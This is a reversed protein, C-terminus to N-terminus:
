LASIKQTPDAALAELITVLEAVLGEATAAEFLDTAYVLAGSLAEQGEMLTLELDHRAAGQVLGAPADARYRVELPSIQLDAQPLSQTNLAARFIPLRAQEPQRKVLRVVEAYPLEQHEFDALMSRRVRELLELGSPDGRLDLRLALPNALPGIVDRVEWRNRNSALTGVAFDDQGGARRSLLTAFGAMLVMLMSCRQEAALAELRRTTEESFALPLLAGEGSPMGGRGHDAQLALGPCDELRAAWYARQEHARSGKLWVDRQWRSYEYHQVPLGPLPNTTGAACARYLLLLERCFVGISWADSVLQHLTVLLRHREDTLTLLTFRAPLDKAFSFPTGTQERTLREVERQQEEGQLSYLDHWALNLPINQIVNQRPRGEVVPFLTRLAGHREILALLARRLAAMNLKGELELSFHLMLFARAADLQQLSWCGLQASSVPHHLSAEAGRPAGVQKMESIVEALASMDLPGTLDQQEPFHEDIIFASLSKITPHKWMVTLPLRLDLLTELRNVLEASSLSDFNYRSLPTEADIQEIKLHLIRAVHERIFHELFFRRGTQPAEVLADRLSQDPVWRESFGYPDEDVWVEELVSRVVEELEGKIFGLRCAYRQIKGSSTKPVSGPKILVIAHCKLEHVTGVAARVASFLEEPSFAIAGPKGKSVKTGAVAVSGSAGAGPDVDEAQRRDAGKRREAVEPPPPAEGERRDKAGTLMKARREVEYVVVLLEEGNVEATVVAGCGPRLAPHAREVTKEIDQPYHNKGRIIILDKLRGTIFLEGEVSFGLDGTRLFTMKQLEEPIGVPALTARFSEDTLDPQNWYGRAVTTGHMWIEGIVGDPCPEFTQTDVVLLTTDLQPKGVSILLQHREDDFFAVHEADFQEFLEIFKRSRVTDDVFRVGLGPLGHTAPVMRTVEARLRLQDGLPLQLRLNLLSGKELVETTVIFAGSLSVNAIQAEFALRGSRCWVDLPQPIRRDVRADILREYAPELQGVRLPGRRTVAMRPPNEVGTATAMLTAEALGYCPFFAERRFGCASFVECFRDVTSPRIPEAGCVAYRWASLDLNERQEWTTKRVCLDFAFNPAPSTIARFNSMAELWVLPRRLFDLPSMLVAPFHDFLPLIIGCMFGMDHYLPLWSVGPQDHNFVNSIINANCLLNQHSLMVGKPKATSGSTYQLFVLDEAEAARRSGPRPRTWPGPRQLRVLAPRLPAPGPRGPDGPGHAAAGRHDAGITAECDEIISLLRPLTRDLRTPDPPYAPVAVVGAAVCGWFGAIYELGPPYLLLAREGKKHHKQIYSAIAKAQQAVAAHTLAAEVEGKKNLFRYPLDDPAHAEREVLLDALTKIKMQYFDKSRCTTM